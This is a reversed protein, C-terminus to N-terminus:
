MKHCSDCAEAVNFATDGNHCAGCGKGTEMAAMTTKNAGRRPVFLKPHCAECGFMELHTAHPFTVNGEESNMFVIDGAHCTTCNSTVSFAKKGNHCAGCARGKEMQQMTVPSHRKRDNLFIKPHCADCDSGHKEHSFIVSGVTRTQLSIELSSMMGMNGANAVASIALLLPIVMLLRRKPM